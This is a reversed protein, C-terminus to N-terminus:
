LFKHLLNLSHELSVSYLTYLSLRGQQESDAAAKLATIPIKRWRGRGRGTATASTALLSHDFQAKIWEREREQESMLQCAETSPHGLNM